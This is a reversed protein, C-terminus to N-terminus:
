IFIARLNCVGDERCTPFGGRELPSKKLFERLLLPRGSKDPLPHTIKMMREPEAGLRTHGSKNEPCTPKM